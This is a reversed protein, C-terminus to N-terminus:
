NTHLNVINISDGIYILLKKTVRYGMKEIADQYTNMQHLHKEEKQGTKYDLLYVKNNSTIVMKDPKVISSGKQIIAQENLITHEESFFGQLNPHHVILDLASKVQEFQAQHISGSQLAKNVAVAVDKPTKIKSLIEHLLTGYEIANQQTTGWMIASYDAIKISEFSLKEELYPIHHLPKELMSVPSEKQSNGFEYQFVEPDFQEQDMLFHIFHSAMTNERVEGKSTLDMLSIIYLQEEPRTLTVYLLNVNDLLEEEKKTKFEVSAEEGFNEVAKTNDILVRPLGFDSEPANLWLKDKQSKGYDEDAFPFIVVPFELGKSKHITMIKIANNGEPTPVAFKDPSKDWFELFDAIGSQNQHERELILDLFYHLYASINKSVMMKEIIMEVTEYLSKKQIVHFSFGKSYPALLQELELETACEMGKAVFDHVPIEIQHHLAIFLLFHAKAELDNRNRIYRLINLIFKVEDSNNLLLTESSLLPINLENLYNAIAVGQAKKRTLVAIDKYHYGQNLCHQIIKYTEQLYLDDKGILEEEVNLGDKPLFTISVYGGTKSNTLQHSHNEYLDKYDPQEFSQSIYKFFANNFQIIEQHSRYNKELSFLKKDTVKFPNEDKSLSIFQEAKGGRWRYISQKPDGVLMLTGKQGFDDQGSLANDILPILNRWQMESTDQFEDIFFHRYREGLREYIFPAPQNQIENYIIANFESISLINQESQIKSLENSITNLLSLPTINKLFAISFDREAFKTYIIGIKHLLEPLLAEIQSRDKADKKITIDELEYYKKNNPNYKGEQISIVHKPFYMGSFSKLDIGKLELLELLETALTQTEKELAECTAKLKQKIKIFSEISKDHLPVLENRNNENLLLKGTEVIERSIEWSKDNDTKEMTFDVLLNTIMEDEGVQSILADVAEILLNETDTTVEFSVSLNLDLAFARIVRHTFKDITSIDFAAYNHILHKIISGAKLQIDHVTLKLERAIDEMLEMAKQSPTDKSFEFLSSVIRSKMEHVAKNTFTIALINRYADNRSARLIIKLYEKVLTYTKGSGASADYISFSHQEM